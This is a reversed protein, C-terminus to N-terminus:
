RAGYGAFRSNPTFAPEDGVRGRRRRLRRTARSVVSAHIDFSDHHLQRLGLVPHEIRGIHVEEGTGAPPRLNPKPPSLRQDVEPFDTLHNFGPGPFANHSDV